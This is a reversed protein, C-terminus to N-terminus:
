ESINQTQWNDADIKGWDGTVYSYTQNFPNLKILARFKYIGDTAGQSKGFDTVKIEHTGVVLRFDDSQSLNPNHYEIDKVVTQIKCVACQIRLWNADSHKEDRLSLAKPTWKVNYREQGNGNDKNDSIKEVTILGDKQAAFLIGMYKDSDQTLVQGNFLLPPKGVWALQGDPIGHPVIVGQPYENYDFQLTLGKEIVSKYPIEKVESKAEQVNMTAQSSNTSGADKKSCSTLVVLAMISTVANLKNM